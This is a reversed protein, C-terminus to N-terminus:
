GKLSVGCQERSLATRGSWGLPTDCKEGKSTQAQLKKKQKQTDKRESTQEIGAVDAGEKLASRELM